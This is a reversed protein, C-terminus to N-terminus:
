GIVRDPFYETVIQRIRFLDTKYKGPLGLEIHIDIIDRGNKVGDMVLILENNNLYHAFRNFVEMVIDSPQSRIWQEFM